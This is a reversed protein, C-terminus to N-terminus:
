NNLDFFFFFTVVAWNKKVGSASGIKMNSRDRITGDSEVSGIKMNSRDRVTGDSEITGIQMNSKDRITQANGGSSMAMAMAALAITLLTKM